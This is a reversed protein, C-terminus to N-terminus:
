NDDNILKSDGEETKKEQYDFTDDLENAKRKRPKIKMIYFILVGISALFVVSLVSITIIYKLHLSRNMSENGENENNTKKYFYLLKDNRNFTILYKKLFPTGVVWESESTVGPVPIKFIVLFYLLGNHEYFLDKPELVFTMNESQIDTLFNINEMEGMNLKDKECYYYKYEDEYLELIDDKCINNEKQKRFFKNYLIDGFDSTCQILRSNLNFIITTHQPDGSTRNDYKEMKGYYIEKMTIAYIFSTHTKYIYMDKENYKDKYALHPLLGLVFKGKTDSKFDLFWTSNSILDNDKMQEIINLKSENGNVFTKLGIFSYKYSNYYIKYEKAVYFSIKKKLTESNGLKFFDKGFTGSHFKEGSYKPIDELKEFSNSLINYKKFDGQVDAGVGPLVMAQSGTDLILKYTDMNEGFSAEVEIATDRLSGIINNEDWKSYIIEFDSEICLSLIFFSSLLFIKM